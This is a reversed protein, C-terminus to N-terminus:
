PSLPTPLPAKHLIWYLFVFAAALFFVLAAAALFIAINDKGPDM